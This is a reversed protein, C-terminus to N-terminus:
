TTVGGVTAMDVVVALAASPTMQWPSDTVKEAARVPLGSTFFHFKGPVPHNLKFAVEM